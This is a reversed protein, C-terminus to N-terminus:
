NLIKIEQKKEQNFILILLYLFHIKIFIDNTMM